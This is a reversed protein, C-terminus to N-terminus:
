RTWSQVRRDQGNRRDAANQFDRLPKEQLIARAQADELMGRLIGCEQKDIGAIEKTHAARVENQARQNIETKDFSASGFFRPVHNRKVSAAEDILHRQVEDVRAAYDLEFTRNTMRRTDEFNKSVERYTVWEEPNMTKALAHRVQHLEGRPEFHDRVQDSLKSM